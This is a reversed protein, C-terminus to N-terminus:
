AKVTLGVGSAPQAAWRDRQGARVGRDARGAGAGAGPRSVGARGVGRAGAADPHHALRDTAAGVADLAGSHLWIAALDINALAKAGFWDQEGPGPGSEYLRVAREIEDAAQREGGPVGSLAAGAFCHYTAQAIAFEGGINLAEDHHERERTENGTGDRVRRRSSVVVDPAVHPGSSSFCDSYVRIGENSAQRPARKGMLWCIRGYDPCGTCYFDTTILTNCKGTM